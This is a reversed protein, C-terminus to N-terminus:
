AVEQDSMYPDTLAMAWEDIVEGVPRNTAMFAAMGAPMPMLQTKNQATAAALLPQMMADHTARPLHPLNAQRYERTLQNSLVRTPHGSLVDTITTSCELSNLVATKYAEAAGSEEAPILVSGMQLGHAGMGLMAYAGRVDGIGGAAIVPIELQDVFLPVLATLPYLGDVAAGIFTAREGGAELGQAIIADCGIKEAILAEVLHTATAICVIGSSRLRAITADDPLGHSFIVAAMNHEIAISVQDTWSISEEQETAATAGLASLYPAIWQHLQLGRQRLEAEDPAQEPNAHAIRIHMGLPAETLERVSDILEVITSEDHSDAPIVGLGGHNAFAAIFAPTCVGHTLASQIFPLRIGCLHTIDTDLRYNTM